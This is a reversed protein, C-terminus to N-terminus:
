KANILNPAKKLILEALRTPFGIMTGHLLYTNRAIATQIRASISNSSQILSRQILRQYRKHNFKLQNQTTKSICKAAYVGSIYANEIGAATIPHPLDLLDGVGIFTKGTLEDFKFYPPKKDVPIPIGWSRLKTVEGKNIHQLKMPHERDLWSLFKKFENKWNVKSLGGIGVDVLGNVTPFVWAYGKYEPIMYFLSINNDWSSKFLKTLSTFRYKFAGLENFEPKALAKLGFGNIGTAVITLTNLKEQDKDFNLRKGLRIDIGKEQAKEILKEQLLKRKTLYMTIPIGKWETYRNGIIVETTTHMPVDIQNNELFNRFYKGFAGGCPKDWIKEEYVTTPINKEHLSLAASIGAVNGGVITVSDM